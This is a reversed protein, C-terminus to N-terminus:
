VLKTNFAFVVRLLHKKRLSLYFKLSFTERLFNKKIQFLKLDAGSKHQCSNVSLLFNLVEANLSKLLSEFKLIELCKQAEFTIEHESM